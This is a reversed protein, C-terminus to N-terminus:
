QLTWLLSCLLNSVCIINKFYEKALKRMEPVRVGIIKERPIHPILKGHFDAYKKDQLEFLKDLIKLM